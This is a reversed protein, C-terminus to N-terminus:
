KIIFDFTEEEDFLANDYYLLKLSSDNKPVEFVITGSAKGGPVLEGSDLSDDNFTTFAEDALQGNSNLIKWDFPSYSINTESNNVIKLTIIIFENGTSPKDWEDGSSFKTNTVSYEVNEYVATETLNFSSKENGNIDTVKTREETCGTVFLICLM